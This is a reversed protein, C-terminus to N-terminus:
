FAHKNEIGWIVRLISSYYFCYVRKLFEIGMLFRNFLKNCQYVSVYVLDNHVFDWLRSNRILHVPLSNNIKPKQLYIKECQSYLFTLFFLVWVYIIPSYM